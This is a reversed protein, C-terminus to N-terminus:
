RLALNFADPLFLMVWKQKKCLEQPSLLFTTEHGKLTVKECRLGWVPGSRLDVLHWPRSSLTKQKPNSATCPPPSGHCFEGHHVPQREPLLLGMIGM